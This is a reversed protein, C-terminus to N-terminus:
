RQPEQNDDLIQISGRVPTETEDNNEQGAREIKLIQGNGADVLVEADAFEVEYVLSGDEVELEVKIATSGHAAEAVQQAQQPTIRALSQYQRQERDEKAANKRDSRKNNEPYLTQATRFGPAPIVNPSQRQVSAAMAGGAMAIVSFLGFTLMTQVTSKM